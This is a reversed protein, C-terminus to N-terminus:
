LVDCVNGMCQKLKSSNANESLSHKAECNGTMRLSFKDYWQVVALLVTWPACSDADKPGLTGYLSLENERIRWGAFRKIIVKGNRCCFLDRPVELFWASPKLTFASFAFLCCPTVNVQIQSYSTKFSMIGKCWLRLPQSYTCLPWVFDDSVIKQKAELIGMCHKLQRVTIDSSFYGSGAKYFGHWFVISAFGGKGAQVPEWHDRM